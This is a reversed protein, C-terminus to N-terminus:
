ESAASIADNLAARAEGLPDGDAVTEGLGDTVADGEADAVALSADFDGFGNCDRDALEDTVADGEGLKSTLADTLASSPSFATWPTFAGVIEGLTEADAAASDLRSNSSIRPSSKNASKSSSNAPNSSSLM